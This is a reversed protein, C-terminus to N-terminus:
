FALTTMVPSLPVPLSTTARAMWLREGRFSFANRARLQEAIGAVSMSDSSNPYSRPAKVPASWRRMPFKSSACLPVNNRSSIPSSGISSCDFNSRFLVRRFETVYLDRIGDEAQFFFASGSVLTLAALLFWQGPVPGRYMQYVCGLVVVLGTAIVTRVYMKGFRSLSTGHVM